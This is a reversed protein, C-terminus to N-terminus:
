HIREIWELTRIDARKSRGEEERQGGGRERCRSGARSLSVCTGACRGTGLGHPEGHRSSPAGPHPSPHPPPIPTLGQAFGKVKPRQGYGRRHGKVMLWYSARHLGPGHDPGKWDAAAAVWRSESAAPTCHVQPAAPRNVTGNVKFM